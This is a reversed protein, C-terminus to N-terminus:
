APSVRKYGNVIETFYDLCEAAAAGGSYCNTPGELKWAPNQATYANWNAQAVDAVYDDLYAGKFQAYTLNLWSASAVVTEGFFFVEGQDAGLEADSQDVRADIM